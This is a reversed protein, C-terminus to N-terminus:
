AARNQLYRNVQGAMLGMDGRSHFRVRGADQVVEAFELAIELMRPFGSPFWEQYTVECQMMVCTIHDSGNHGLKTNPMVLLCKPPEFVRIEEATEGEYLPYTFYRLWSVATRLDLDRRGIRLGSTVGGNERNPYPESALTNEDPETDTTFVGTFSLRREGGHTWQYIPHSGGPIFRPNWTVERSDTLSEPWYQFAIERSGNPEEWPPTESPATDKAVLYVQKLEPRHGVNIIQTLINQPLDPM